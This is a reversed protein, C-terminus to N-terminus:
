LCWKEPSPKYGRRGPARFNWSRNTLQCWILTDYNVRPWFSGLGLTITGDFHDNTWILETPPHNDLYVLSRIPIEAAPIRPM